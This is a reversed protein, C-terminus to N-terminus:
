YYKSMKELGVFTPFRLCPLRRFYTLWFRCSKTTKAQGIAVLWRKSSPLQPLRYAYISTFLIFVSFAVSQKLRIPTQSVGRWFSSVVQERGVAIDGIIHFSPCAFIKNEWDLCVVFRRAPLQQLRHAYEYFPNRTSLSLVCRNVELSLSRRNQNQPSNVM